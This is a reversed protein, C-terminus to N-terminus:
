KQYYDKYWAVFSKIGDEITTQPMWGLKENAKDISAYTTLVDGPQLPLFNKVATVGTEKELLEVMYSLKVPANNGLNIIEFPYSKECARVVGEAIDEVFTFDRHMDGQNFIDIPTGNLMSKTFNFIAMDPRGWPGYVTFFRLCTCNMGFLHHYSYAMVEDAKKTAAYLSLPYDTDASESFPMADQNGYVSSSSALVVNKVGADKAENLVCAFGTVNTGIYKYPETISNRVGAQAALHCVTEISNESFLKKLFSVDQIDGRYLVFQPYSELITNRAEKLSVDYYDSFNDVGIVRDGQELLKKSVHFGIFGASGTVLYTKPTKM